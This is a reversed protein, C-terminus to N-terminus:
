FASFVLLTSLVSCKKYPKSHNSSVLSFIYREFCFFLFLSCFFLLHMWMYDYLILYFTTDYRFNAHHYRTTDHMVVFITIRRWWWSSLGRGVGEVHWGFKREGCIIDDRERERYQFWFSMYTIYLWVCTTYTSGAWTMVKHTLSSHFISWLASAWRVSKIVMVRKTSLSCDFCGSARPSKVIKSLWM